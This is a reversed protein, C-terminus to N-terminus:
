ASSSDSAANEDLAPAEGPDDLRPRLHPNTRYVGNLWQDVLPEPLELFGMFGGGLDLPEAADEHNEVKTLHAVCCGYVYALYGQPLPLDQSLEVAMAQEILAQRRMSDLVSATKLTLSVHYTDDQYDLTYAM